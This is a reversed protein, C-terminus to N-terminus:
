QLTSRPHRAGLHSHDLVKPGLYGTLPGTEAFSLSPLPM